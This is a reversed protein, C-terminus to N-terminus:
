KSYNACARILEKRVELMTKIDTTYNDSANVAIKNVLQLALEKNKIGLQFLLEYDEAMDRNAIGRISNKVKNNGVDPYVTYHDGKFGEEAVTHIKDQYWEVWFNWGWHLWGSVGWKYCLWGLTRQQWVPKDILRNLWEHGPLCCNYVYVKVGENQLSDFNYKYIEYLDEIPTVITAGKKVANHASALTFTPDGCDMEPAHTKIKDMYYSYQKHQLDSVAEDGLHQMWMKLWGKKKLHKYLAPVFRNFFTICEDNM